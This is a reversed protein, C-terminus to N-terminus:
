LQHARHHSYYCYSLEHLHLLRQNKLVVLVLYLIYDYDYNFSAAKAQPTHTNQLLRPAQDTCAVTDLHSSLV